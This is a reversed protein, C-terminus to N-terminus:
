TLRPPVSLRKTASFACRARKQWRKFCRALARIAKPTAALKEARLRERYDAPRKSFYLSDQRRAIQRPKVPADHSAVTSVVYGEMEEPTPDFGALWCSAENFRRLTADIEPDRYSYFRASGQGMMRFGAGYAGGKVRVENWLYDFNLANSAVAWLGKYPGFRLVDAGQAVYNVDSPVIFAENKVCPAPM